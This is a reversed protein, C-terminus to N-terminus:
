ISFIIKLTSSKRRFSFLEFFEGHKSKHNSFNHERIFKVNCIKCEYKAGVLSPRKRKIKTPYPVDDVSECGDLAVRGSFLQLFFVKLEFFVRSLFRSCM